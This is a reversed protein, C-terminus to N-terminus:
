LGGRLLHTDMSQRVARLTEITAKAAIADEISVRRRAQYEKEADALMMDIQQRHAALGGPAPRMACDSQSRLHATHIARVSNDANINDRM